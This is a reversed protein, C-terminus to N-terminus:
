SFFINAISQIKCLLEPCKEKNFCIDCVSKRREFVIKRSRPVTWLSLLTLLARLM